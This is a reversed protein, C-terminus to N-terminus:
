ETKDKSTRDPNHSKKILSTSHTDVVIFDKADKIAQFKDHVLNTKTKESNSDSSQQKDNEPM